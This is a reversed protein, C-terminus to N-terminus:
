EAEQAKNIANEVDDSPATLLDFDTVVAQGAKNKPLKDGVISRLSSLFKVRQEHRLNLLRNTQEGTIM